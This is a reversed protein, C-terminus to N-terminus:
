QFLTEQQNFDIFGAQAIHGNGSAYQGHYKDGRSRKIFCVIFVILLLLALAVMMGIFWGETVVASQVVEETVTFYSSLTLITCIGRKM